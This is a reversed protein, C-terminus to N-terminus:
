IGAVGLDIHCRRSDHSIDINKTRPTGSLMEVTKAFRDIPESIKV